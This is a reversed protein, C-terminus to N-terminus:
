FVVILPHFTTSLLYNIAFLMDDKLDTSRLKLNKWQVARKSLFSKRWNPLVTHPCLPIFNFGANVLSETQIPPSGKCIGQSKSYAVSFPILEPQILGM